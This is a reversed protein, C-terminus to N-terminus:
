VGLCIIQVDAGMSMTKLGEFETDFHVVKIVADAFQSDLSFLLSVSLSRLTVYFLLSESFVLCTFVLLVWPVVGCGRAEVMSHGHLPLLM